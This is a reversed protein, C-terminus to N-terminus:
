EVVAYATAPVFGFDVVKLPGIILKFREAKIEGCNVACGLMDFGGTMTYLEKFEEALKGSDMYRKAVEKAEPSNPAPRPKRMGWETHLSCLDTCQWSLNSTDYGFIPCNMQKLYDALPAVSEPSLCPSWLEWNEGMKLYKEGDGHGTYLIIADRPRAPCKKIGAEMESATILNGGEKDEKPVSLLVADKLVLRGLDHKLVEGVKKPAACLYRTGPESYLTFSALDWKLSKPVTYEAKFPVEWPFHGTCYYDMGDKLPLTLDIIRM